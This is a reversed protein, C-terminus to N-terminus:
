VSLHCIVQPYVVTLANSQVTVSLSLTALIARIVLNLAQKEGLTNNYQVTTFVYKSLVDLETGFRSMM